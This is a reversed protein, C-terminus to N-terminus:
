ATKRRRRILGLGVLASGLLALSAPEPIPAATGQIEITADVTQPALSPGFDLLFEGSDSTIAGVTHGSTTTGTTTFAMTDLVTGDPAFATLTFPGSGATEILSNVTLTASLPGGPFTLGTQDVTIELAHATGLLPTTVALETTSLDPSTLAPVGAATVDIAAFAANSCSNSLNGTGSAASCSAIPAGNDSATLMLEANAALPWLLPSALLAAALLKRTM